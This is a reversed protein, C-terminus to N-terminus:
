SEAGEVPEKEIRDAIRNASSALYRLRRVLEDAGEVEPDDLLHQIVRVEQELREVHIAIREAGKLDGDKM